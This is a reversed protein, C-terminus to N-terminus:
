PGMQVTNWPIAIKYRCRWGSSNQVRQNVLAHGDERTSCVDTPRMGYLYTGDMWGDMWGDM